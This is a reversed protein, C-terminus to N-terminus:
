MKVDQVFLCTKDNLAYCHQCLWSSLVADHETMYWVGQKTEQGGVSPRVIKKGDLFRFLGM